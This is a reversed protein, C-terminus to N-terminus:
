FNDLFGGYNGSKSPFRERIMKVICAPIFKRNVRGLHGWQWMMYQRYVTYRWNSNDDPNFNFCLWDANGKMALDFVRDELVLHYFDSDEHNKKTKVVFMKRKM